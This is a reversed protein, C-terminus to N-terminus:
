KVVGSPADRTMTADNSLRVGNLRAALEDLDDPFLNAYHRLTVAADEHGLLRSVVM